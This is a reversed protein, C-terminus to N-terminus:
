LGCEGGKTEGMVGKREGGDEWLCFARWSVPVKSWKAKQKSFCCCQLCERELRHKGDNSSKWLEKKGGKMEQSCRM